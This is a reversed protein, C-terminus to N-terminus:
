NPRSPGEGIQYIIFIIMKGGFKKKGESSGFEMGVRKGVFSNRGGMGSGILMHQM